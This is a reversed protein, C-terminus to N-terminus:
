GMLFGRKTSITAASSWRTRHLLSCPHSRGGRGCGAWSCGGWWRERETPTNKGEHTYNPNEQQCCSDTLAVSRAGCVLSANVGEAIRLRLTDQASLPAHDRGWVNALRIQAFSLNTERCGLLIPRILLLVAVRPVSYSRKSGKGSFSLKATDDQLLDYVKPKIQPQFSM